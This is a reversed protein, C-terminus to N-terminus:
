FCYKLVYQIGERTNDIFQDSTICQVTPTISISRLVDNMASRVPALFCSECRFDECLELGKPLNDPHCGQRHKLLFALAVFITGCQGCTYEDSSNVRPKHLMTVAPTTQTEVSAESQSTSEDLDVSYDVLKQPNSTSTTAGLNVNPTTVFHSKRHPSVKKPKLAAELTRCNKGGRHMNLNAVSDIMSECLECKYKRHPTTLKETHTQSNSTSAIAVPVPTEIPGKSLDGVKSASKSPSYKRKHTVVKFPLIAPQKAPLSPLDSSSNINFQQPVINNSALLSSAAMKNWGDVQRPKTTPINSSSTILPFMLQKVPKGNNISLAAMSTAQPKHLPIADKATTPTPAPVKAIVTTPKHHTTTAKISTAPQQAKIIEMATATINPAANVVFPRPTVLGHSTTPQDRSLLHPFLQQPSLLRRDMLTVKLIKGIMMTTKM